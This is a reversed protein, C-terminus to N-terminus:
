QQRAINLSFFNTSYEISLRKNSTHLTPSFFLYSSALSFTSIHSLYNRRSLYNSQYLIFFYIYFSHPFFYLHTHIMIRYNYISYMASPIQSNRRHHLNSPCNQTPQPCNLYSWCLPNNLQINPADKPHCM